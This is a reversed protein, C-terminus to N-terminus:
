HKKSFLILLIGGAVLMSPFLFRYSCCPLARFLFIMVGFIIFITGFVILVVDNRGKKKVDSVEEYATEEPQKSFGQFATQKEPIVLLMILYLILGAGGCFALFCFIVRFIVPDVNFYEGLGGCIGAIKKDTASRTLRKTDM